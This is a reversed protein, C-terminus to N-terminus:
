RAPIIRRIEPGSNGTTAATSADAALDRDVSWVHGCTECRYYRATTPQHTPGAWEAGRKLCFQCTDSTM